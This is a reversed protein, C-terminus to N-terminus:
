ILHSNNKVSSALFLRIPKNFYVHLPPLTAWHLPRCFGLVTLEFRVRQELYRLTGERNDFPTILKVMVSPRMRDQRLAQKVHTISFDSTPIVGQKVMLLHSPCHLLETLPKHSYTAKCNVSSFYHFCNTCTM